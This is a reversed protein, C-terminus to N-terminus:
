QAGSVSKTGVFTPTLWRTHCGHHNCLFNGVGSLTSVARHTGHPARHMPLVSKPPMIQPSTIIMCACFNGM